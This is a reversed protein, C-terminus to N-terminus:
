ERQPLTRGTWALAGLSREPRVLPIPHSSTGRSARAVPCPCGDAGGGRLARVNDRWRYALALAVQIPGIVAFAATAVLLMAIVLMSAIILGALGILLAVVIVWTPGDRKPASEETETSGAFGCEPAVPHPPEPSRPEDVRPPEAPAVRNRDSDDAEFVWAPRSGIVIEIPAEEVVSSALPAFDNSVRRDTRPPEDPRASTASRQSVDPSPDRLGIWLGSARAEAMARRLAILFLAHPDDIRKQSHAAEGRSMWRILTPEDVGVAMCSRPVGWGELVGRCIALTIERNPDAGVM